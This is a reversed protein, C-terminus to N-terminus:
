PQKKLVGIEVKKHKQLSRKSVIRCFCDSYMTLLTYATTIAALTM